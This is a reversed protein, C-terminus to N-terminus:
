REAPTLRVHFRVELQQVGPYPLDQLREVIAQGVDTPLADPTVALRATAPRDPALTVEVLIETCGHAVGDLEDDVVYGIERVAQAIDQSGGPIARELEADSNLLVIEGLRVNILSPSVPDSRRSPRGRSHHRFVGHTRYTEGFPSGYARDELHVAIEHVEGDPGSVDCAFAREDALSTLFREWLRESLLLAFGDELQSVTPELRGHGIMLFNGGRGDDGHFAAATGSRGPSIAMPGQQGPQWIHISRVEHAVGALLARVDPGTRLEQALAACRDRPLTLLLQAGYRAVQLYPTHVRSTRALVTHNAYTSFDVVPARARDFWWPYPFHRAQQGLLTLVRSHGFAVAADIEGTLLPITLLPDERHRDLALDRWEVPTEAFLFGGISVGEPDPRGLTAHGGVQVPSGGAAQRFVHHFLPLPFGPPRKEGPPRHVVVLLDRQGASGMGRTAILWYRGAADPLEVDAVDTWLANPELEATGLPSRGRTM